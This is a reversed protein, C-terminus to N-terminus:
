VPDNLIKMTTHLMGEPRARLAPDQVWTEWTDNHTLGLRPHVIAGAALLLMHDLSALIPLLENQEFANIAVIRGQKKWIICTYSM